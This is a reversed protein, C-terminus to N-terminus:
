KSKRLGRIPLWIFRPRYTDIFVTDGTNSTNSNYSILIKGDQTFQPHIHPNYVVMGSNLNETATMGPVKLSGTEPTKYIVKGGIFPGEPKCSSYLRLDSWEKLHKSTDLSSILYIERGNITIKEVSFEDSVSDGNPTIVTPHGTKAWGSGNWMEWNSADALKAFSTSNTRAIFAQKKGDRVGKGYIYTRGNEIQAATGWHIKKDPLGGIDLQREIKLTVPDLMAISAGHFELKADFKHLFVILKRGENLRVLKADGMWYYLGKIPEAFYSTSLGNENKPGVLTRFSKGDVSRVVISNRAAFITGAPDCWPPPCNIQMKRLGTPSVTVTGDGKTVPSEGVYSDSFFFATEGSPLLVSYTSDGGTWGPSGKVNLGTGGGNQTFASDWDVAMAAEDVEVNCQSAVHIVISVVLAVTAAFKM